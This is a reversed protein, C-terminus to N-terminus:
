TKPKVPIWVEEESNPDNTKYKEGLLEFHERHDLQYASQPLWQELIYGMTEPFTQPTGKHVFVAYLGGELLYTQMGEPIDSSNSVEVAAWKTFETNPDFKEFYGSDYVQMSYLLSDTTNPIEKRRPMFSSWLEYTRNNTLSMKISKGVLKKEALIEIRPEMINTFTSNM